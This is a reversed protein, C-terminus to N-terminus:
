AVLLMHFFETNSFIIWMNVYQKFLLASWPIKSKTLWWAFHKRVTQYNEKVMHCQLHQFQFIVMCLECSLFPKTRDGAETKHSFYWFWFPTNQLKSTSLTSHAGPLRIFFKDALLKHKGRWTNSNIQLLLRRASEPITWARHDNHSKTIILIYSRIDQGFTNTWWSSKVLVKHIQM